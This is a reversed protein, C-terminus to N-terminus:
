LASPAGTQQEFCLGTLDAQSFLDMQHVNEDVDFRESETNYGWDCLVLKNPMVAQKSVKVSLGSATRSSSATPGESM